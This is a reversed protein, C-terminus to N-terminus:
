PEEYVKAEGEIEVLGKTFITINALKGPELVIGVRQVKGKLIEEGTIADYFKTHDSIGDTCAVKIRM